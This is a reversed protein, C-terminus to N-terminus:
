RSKKRMEARYAAKEEETMDAPIDDFLPTSLYREGTDPLVALINAGEEVKEALKLACSLIGGGSTGTFIGEKTALEKCTEMSTKGDAHMLGDIYKADSAKKVLQPIFDAAWGQFLHPRWVPHAVDFSTSPSGNEPYKTEIESYLMPANNPECVHIKTDPSRERMYKGVGKLTGGTGYACVFHDLKMKEAEFAEVIEPGTTM